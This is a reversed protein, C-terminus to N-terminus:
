LKLERGYFRPPDIQEGERVLRNLDCVCPSGNITTGYVIADSIKGAVSIKEVVFSERYADDYVWLRWFQGPEVTV